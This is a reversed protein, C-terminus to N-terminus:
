KARIKRTESLQKNVTSVASVTFSNDGNIKIFYGTLYGEPCPATIGPSRSLPDAPLTILYDPLLISCLDVAAYSIERPTASTNEPLKGNNFYLYQGFANAILKIDQIRKSDLMHADQEAPKLIFLTVALFGIVLCMLLNLVFLSM